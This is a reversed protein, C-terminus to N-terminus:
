KFVGSDNLVHFIIYILSLGVLSIMMWNLNKWIEKKLEKSGNKFGLAMLHKIPNVIVYMFGYLITAFAFGISISFGLTGMLVGGLLVPIDFSKKWDFSRLEKVILISVLVLVPGTIPKFAGIPLFPKLVPWLLISLLFLFATIISSFGTRAGAKYGSTSEVFSTVSSNLLVAGAITSFGDVLNARKIWNSEKKNDARKDDFLKQFVLLTGTTDFFDVYFFTLIAVYFLPNKFTTGFASWMNQSAEGFKNFDGYENLEFAGSLGKAWEADSDRGVFYAIALMSVGALMGIIISGPVHLFYLALMILLTLIGIIVVPNYLHGVQTLTAASVTIVGMDQLGIYGIFFGILVTITIKFNAPLANILYKRINTLCVLAYLIGSFFVSILAGSYGLGFTQAVTFTLFVNIGMGPALALPVRGYFGMIFTGIFASIATGLFIAGQFEAGSAISLISPNVSLIYIMALFTTIGGIIEKKWTSNNRTIGFYNNTKQLLSRM